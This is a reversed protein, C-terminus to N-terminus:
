LKHPKFHLFANKKKIKAKKRHIEFNFLCKQKIKQMEAKKKYKQM